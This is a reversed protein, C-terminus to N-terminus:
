VSLSESRLLKGFMGTKLVRKVEGVKGKFGGHEKEAKDDKKPGAKTGKLKPPSQLPVEVKEWDSNSESLTEHPEAAPADTLPAPPSSTPADKPPPIPSSPRSLRMNATKVPDIPPAPLIPASVPPPLSSSSAEAM